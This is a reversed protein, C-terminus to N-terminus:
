IQEFNSKMHTEFISTFHVYKAYNITVVIFIEINEMLIILFSLPISM